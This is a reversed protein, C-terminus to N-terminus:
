KSGPPLPRVRTTGDPMDYVCKFNWRPPLWRWNRSSSYGTNRLASNHLNPPAPNIFCYEDSRYGGVAQYGFYGVVTLVAATGLTLGALLATRGRLTM